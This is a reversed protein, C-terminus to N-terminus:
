DIQTLPSIKICIFIMNDDINSVLNRIVCRKAHDVYWRRWEVAPIRVLTPRGRRGESGQWLHCKTDIPMGPNKVIGEISSVAEIRWIDSMDVSNTSRLNVPGVRKRDHLVRYQHPCHRHRSSPVYSVFQLRQPYRPLMEFLFRVRVM